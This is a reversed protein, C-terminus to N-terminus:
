TKNNETYTTLNIATPYAYGRAHLAPAPLHRHRRPYYIRYGTLTQPLRCQAPRRTLRGSRHLWRWCPPGAGEGGGADEEEGQADNAAKNHQGDDKM